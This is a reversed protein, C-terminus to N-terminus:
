RDRRENALLRTDIRRIVYTVFDKDCPRDPDLHSEAELVWLVRNPSERAMLFIDSNDYTGETAWNDNVILVDKLGDGNFDARALITLRDAWGVTYVVMEGASIVEVREIRSIWSWPVRRQNIVLQVCVLSRKIPQSVMWPLYEPAEENLEFDRVYSIRAPKARKMLEIGRCLALMHRMLEFVYTNWGTYGQARLDILLRCNNVYVPNERKTQGEEYQFMKLGSWDSRLPRELREDIRDLSELELMPSWWIPYPGPEEAGGGMVPMAALFAVLVSMRARSMM